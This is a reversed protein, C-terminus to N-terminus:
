ISNEIDTNSINSMEPDCKICLVKYTITVYCTYESAWCYKVRQGTWKAWENVWWKNTDNTWLDTIDSDDTVYESYAIGASIFYITPVISVVTNSVKIWCSIAQCRGHVLITVEICSGYTTKHIFIFNAIHWILYIGVFRCSHIRIHYKASFKGCSGIYM